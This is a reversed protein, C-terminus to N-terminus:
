GGDTARERAKELLRILEALEAGTMHGLLDCHLARLPGDIRALLEAGTPTIAVYIVRRDSLCRERRVLGKAEMRDILGTIGPVATVTRSAIELIPLPVGAGRLIRLINYQSGSSLGFGRFFREFRLQLRDATRVINLAAEENAADFPKRKKVETQLRGAMPVGRGFSVVGM